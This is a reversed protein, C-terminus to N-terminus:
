PLLYLRACECTDAITYGALAFWALATQEVDNKTIIANINCAYGFNNVHGGKETKPFM